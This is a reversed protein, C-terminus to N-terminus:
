QKLASDAIDEVDEQVSLLDAALLDSLTFTESDYPIEKGTLEQLQLWHRDKIAEHGLQEVLPLITEM